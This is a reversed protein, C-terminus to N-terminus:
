VNGAGFHVKLLVVCDQFKCDLFLVDREQPDFIDTFRKRKREKYKFLVYKSRCFFCIIIKHSFRGWIKHVYGTMDIFTVFNRDKGYLLAEEM